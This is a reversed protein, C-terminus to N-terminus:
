KRALLVTAYAAIGEGAGTFGLGETTTAKVNVRGPDTELAKAMCGAMQGTYPALRPEQAVIVADVNEVALEKEQIVERVRELLLLSKIGGYRSDSDPFHRGIDGAGAAGLLADMVAHVLVDADSHGELGKKHPIMVGGLVLPRGEVLRHADYGFGTRVAFMEGTGGYGAAGQRAGFIASALVLDEPTTIKINEYSGAVLKVPLGAMEVLSADDTGTWGERRARDHVDVLLRFDFAQPTQTLWLRERPLTESVFGGPGSMKVTDKVPVACASAGHALAAEVADHINWATLLPRAGDHVVVVETEPHITKLGNYVSEQRTSGGAIVAKVKTFGYPVLVRERCFDEQGPSVVVVIGQVYPSEEFAKLVHGLVPKGALSLFQKRVDLGLRTSRGAAPVVASVRAM